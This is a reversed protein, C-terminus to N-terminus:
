FSIAEIEKAKEETVPIDGNRVGYIETHTKVIGDIFDNYPRSCVDLAGIQYNEGDFRGLYAQDYLIFYHAGLCMPHSAARHLYRRYAVGREHQNEVGRLGTADMGRDLAGFHFEGIIVPMNVIKSFDDIMRYPDMDYCNFSFVDTYECGSALVPSALWAYRIGLNLHNPDARRAAEAPIRIYRRIMEVSYVQLDDLAKKSIDAAEFPTRLSDFSAFGAEWAENLSTIDGYKEKLGGIIYEKSYLEDACNMCLAAINIDPMFAWTPENSMFYGVLNPDNKTADFFHAWKEASEEFEPSFVDPFERFIIKETSPYDWAIITYPLQSRKVFNMDSWCAVTNCGWRILRRRIMDVWTSYYNDGFALYMNHVFYNFNETPKGKWQSKSWGITDKPPLDECLHTIGTLNCQDGLGVCDFGTSFFAYGDPDCMWYKGDENYLSFFGTGEKLKKQTWGGWKSRDPLPTDRKDDAEARLVACLEDVSETRGEWTSAKKQGLADVVKIEELPYEPEEDLIAINEIKLTLDVPTKDVYLAFKCMRDLHVPHGNVVTKLRGPTRPIFLDGASLVSFPLAIRTKIGPLLGMKISMDWMDSETEWFQWCIGAAREGLVTIDMSLYQDPTIAEGFFTGKEFSIHVSSASGKPFRALSDGHIESRWTSFSSLDTTKM